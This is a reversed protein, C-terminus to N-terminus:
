LQTSIGLYDSITTAAEQWSRCLRFRYGQAQLAEAWQKQESSLRGKGSKMEIYLGHYGNGAIPLCLDPVGRRVGEAKMRAAVVKHRHGGNPIAHLLGLEPHGAQVLTVWRFLTAQEQHETASQWGDIM